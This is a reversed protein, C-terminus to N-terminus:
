RRVARLRKEPHVTLLSAQPQPRMLPNRGIAAGRPAGDARAGARLALDRGCGYARRDDGAREHHGPSPAANVSAGDYGRAGYADANGQNVGDADASVAQRVM